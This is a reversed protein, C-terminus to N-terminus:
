PRLLVGIRNHEVGRATVHEDDVAIGSGDTDDVRLRVANNRRDRGASLQFEGSCIALALQIHIALLFLFDHADVRTGVLDIRVPRDGVAFARMAQGDIRCTMSHEGAAHVLHQNHDIGFAAGGDGRHRDSRARHRPM